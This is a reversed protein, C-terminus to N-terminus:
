YSDRMRLLVHGSTQQLTLEGVWMIGGLLKITIYAHEYLEAHINTREGWLSLIDLACAKLDKIYSFGGRGGLLALLVPVTLPLEHLSQYWVQQCLSISGGLDSKQHHM